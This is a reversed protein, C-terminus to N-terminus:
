CLTSLEDLEAVSCMPHVLGGKNTLACYSGTLPQNAITTRYVEVGLVDGIIEETEKELEPHVLAVYDNCAIVNGLASLKEEVRQMKVSEPLSNRIAQMENDTTNNPVLLGKSNGAIMVGVIKCQAISIPVVPMHASLTSEFESYFNESGGSAVLCYKNTLKCFVGVESSNEFNIRTAM